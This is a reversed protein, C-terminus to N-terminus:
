KKLLLVTIIKVFQWDVMPSHPNWSSKGFHPDTWPKRPFRRSRIPSLFALTRANGRLQRFNWIDRYEGPPLMGGRNISVKPDPIIAEDDM